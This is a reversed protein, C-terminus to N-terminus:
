ATGVLERYLLEYSDVIKEWRYKENWESKGQDGLDRCLSPDDLLNNVREAMESATRIIFGGRLERANGVDTSVFPIGSAMAEVLVLPAYEIRSGFVFVDAQKFASIVHQRPIGVPTKIHGNSGIASALCSAYCETKNGGLIVLTVDDRELSEFAKLVVDHGKAWLHNGVSLLMFKTEINYSRRFDIWSEKFERESVGNPIIRYHNVGYRDGFAKDRGTATHYVVIDYQALHNPLRKFYRWYILRLKLNSLGSYGCPIFVKSFKLDSLLPFVLDSSWTQAAYNLMVDWYESSIFAQYKRSDEGRASGLASCSVKFQAIRVGNLAGFDRRADFATAVTVDHGRRVLEESLQRIVQESGGM